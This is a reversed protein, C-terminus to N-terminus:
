RHYAPSSTPIRSAPNPIDPLGSLDPSLDRRYALSSAPDEPGRGTEPGDPTHRPGVEPGVKVDRYRAVVAATTGGVDAEEPIGGSEPGDAADGPKVESAGGVPRDRAVVAAAAGGVDADEPLGGSEPRNSANRPSIEPGAPIYRHRSSVTSPQRCTVAYSCLIIM